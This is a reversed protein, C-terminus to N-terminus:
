QGRRSNFSYFAVLRDARSGLPRYYMLIQYDNETEYSNGEVGVEDREGTIPNVLVYQYNYYGQKLYAAGVYAKLSDSYTMKYEPKLQWDTFQGYLYVDYGEFPQAAKLTFRVVAYDCQDLGANEDRNEISFRGNIDPTQVYPKYARSEDPTISVEYYDQAMRLTQIFEGRFRFTRMDFYRWEKGAPFVIRDQYEYVLQNQRRIFPTLPGIASDWRGNQLVFAKVEREPYQVYTNSTQVSFNIEHHTNMREVRAPRVFQASVQWINETVLFRRVLVLQRGGDTVDYVKLLYNGSQTWRVNSNPLAVWYHMYPQLTTSSNQINQIRDETFGDLYELENLSSRRWDANCHELTYVYDRIETGLRDFSLILSGAAAKLHVVPFSLPANRLHFRVASIDPDYIREENHPNDPQASLRPPILLWM